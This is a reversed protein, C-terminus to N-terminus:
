ASRRATNGRASPVFGRHSQRGLSRGTGGGTNARCTPAGVAAARDMWKKITEISAARKAADPDSLNESGDVQINIIRSGVAEAAAKIQQCYDLSM